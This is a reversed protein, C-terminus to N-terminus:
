LPAAAMSIAFMTGTTVASVEVVDGGICASQGDISNAEVRCGAFLVTVNLL